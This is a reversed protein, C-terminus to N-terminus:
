LPSYLVAAHLGRETIRHRFSNPLRKDHRPSRAPPTAALVAVGMSENGAGRGSMGRRSLQCKGLTRLNACEPCNWFCRKRKRLRAAVALEASRATAGVANQSRGGARKSHRAPDSLHAALSNISVPGIFDGDVPGTREAWSGRRGSYSHRMSFAASLVSAMSLELRSSIRSYYERRNV